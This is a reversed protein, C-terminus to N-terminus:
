ELIAPIKTETKMELLSSSNYISPFRDNDHIYSVILLVVYGYGECWSQFGSDSQGTDGSIIQKEAAPALSHLPTDVATLPVGTDSLLSQM